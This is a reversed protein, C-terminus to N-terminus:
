AVRFHVRLWSGVMDIVYPSPSRMSEATLFDDSLEQPYAATIETLGPKRKGVPLEYWARWFQLPVTRHIWLDDYRQVTADFWCRFWYRRVFSGNVRFSRHPPFDMLTAFLYPLQFEELKGYEWIRERDAVRIVDIFEDVALGKVLLNLKHFHRPWNALFLARLRRAAVPDPERPPLGEYPAGASAKTPCFSSNSRHAFHGISNPSEVDNLRQKCIPCRAREQEPLTDNGFEKRHEAVTILQSHEPHLAQRM